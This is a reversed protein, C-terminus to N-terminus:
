DGIPTFFPATPPQGANAPWGTVADGALIASGSPVFLPDIEVWSNTPHDYIVAPEAWTGGTGEAFVIEDGRGLAVSFVGDFPQPPAEDWGDAAVTAATSHVHGQEGTGNHVFAFDDGCAVSPYLLAQRDVPDFAPTAVWSPESHTLDLLRLSVGAIADVPEDVTEPEAPSAVVEGGDLLDGTVVAVTDGALCSAEVRVEPAPLPSWSRDAVDFTWFERASAPGLLAVVRGDSTTGLAEAYGDVERELEAPLAVLDWENAAIDYVAAAYTGPACHNSSDERDRTSDPSCSTGLVTVQEGVAAAWTYSSNLPLDFPAEAVPAFRRTVPDWLAADTREAPLHTEDVPRVPDPSGGYVFLRDGTWALAPSRRASLTATATRPAEDSGCAALLAAAAAVAAVLARWHTRRM